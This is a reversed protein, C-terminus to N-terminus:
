ARLEVETRSRAGPQAEGQGAAGKPWGKGAGAGVRAGGPREGGAQVSVAATAGEVVARSCMVWSWGRGSDGARVGSRSGRNDDGREGSARGSVGSVAVM